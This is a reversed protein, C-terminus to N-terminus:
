KSAVYEVEIVIDANETDLRLGTGAISFAINGGTTLGNTGHATVALSTATGGRDTVRILLVKQISGLYSSGGRLMVGFVSNGSNEDDATTFAVTEIADVDTTQGQTRLLMVGPLDTSGLTKSAPTANGTITFEACLRKQKLNYDGLASNQEFASAHAGM